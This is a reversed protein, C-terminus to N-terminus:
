LRPFAYLHLGEDMQLTFMTRYKAEKREDVRKFKFFKLLLAALIKMQRYAFEKGLCIRPGAHFATFKFPSESRFVGDDDLWREPRFEEADDGWINTMRGMAYAMYTIEDGKKVKYGDPLIDDEVPAKGDLPVAPYLRLTETIAAHLYQMKNLAEETILESFEEPSISDEHAEAAERVEQAIREQVLPHKCVLYSFWTLTNASSDKGAIIFNLIIDRLYQDTMNEPDKTSEMLFRSLIDEKGSDLKGNRMQERKRRILEFIFGDIIKLNQKLSAELGINLFRKIKWSFDVYRWFVIVNSDDFAKTFRKGFDDIGNLNNLDVGFAVKFISDLASKMLMDQLDIVEGAVASVSIKSVLKAANVRFVNTSFDRLVRTSFEYSALKRQHRWKEGDVAFIGDGFLDRMIALNYDGKGYNLFNTKLIHEINTPDVTYIDSRSPTLMRYTRHKRAVATQYDFLKNFHVLHNLVLGAIPPRRETSLSERIYAYLFTALIAVTLFVLVGLLALVFPTATFLGLFIFSMSFALLLAGM